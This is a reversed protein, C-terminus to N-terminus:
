FLHPSASGLRLISSGARTSRSSRGISWRGSLPKALTESTVCTQVPLPSCRILRRDRPDKEWFARTTWSVLLALRSWVDVSWFLHVKFMYQSVEVVAQVCTITPPASEVRRGSKVLERELASWSLISIQPM